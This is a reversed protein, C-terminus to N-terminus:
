SLIVRRVPALFPRDPALWDVGDLDDPGLWRVESHERPEPEGALVRGTYVRLVYRDGIPQEPGLEEGVEIALGLEEEIERVAASQDSEGIEVKGGPFEWGGESGAGAPRRAALVRGGRILAVGVVVEPVPGSSM